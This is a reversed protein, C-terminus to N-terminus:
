RNEAAWAYGGVFDGFPRHTVQQAWSGDVDITWLTVADGVRKQFLLASGDPSWIPSASTSGDAATTLQRLGSGDANVVWVQPGARLKNTFAIRRGDPSWRASAAGVDPSVLQRLATGDANVLFLTNPTDDPNPIPAAAFAVTTGDPSLDAPGGWDAVTLDRPTLQVPHRGSTPIAFLSRENDPAVPLQQADQLGWPTRNVFLWSADASSGFLEDEARDPSSSLRRLDFGGLTGVSYVGFDNPNEGPRDPHPPPAGDVVLIRTGNASWDSPTLHLHRYPSGYLITLRSGDQSVVAPRAWTDGVSVLFQGDRASSVWSWRTTGNPVAADNSGDPDITFLSYRDWNDDPRVFAIRGGPRHADAASRSASASAHEVPPVSPRSSPVATQVQTPSPTLTVAGCGTVLLVAALVVALRPAHREVIGRGPEPLIRPRQMASGGDSAAVVTAAIAPVPVRAHPDNWGATPPIMRRM